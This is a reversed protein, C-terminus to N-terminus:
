TRFTCQSCRTLDVSAKCLNIEWTITEMESADRCHTDPLALQYDVKNDRDYQNLDECAENELWHTSPKFGRTNLYIKM